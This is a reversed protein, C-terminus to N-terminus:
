TNYVCQVGVVGDHKALLRRFESRLHRSRALSTSATARARSRKLETRFTFQTQLRKVVTITTSKQHGDRSLDVVFSHANDTIM